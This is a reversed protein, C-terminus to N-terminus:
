RCKNNAKKVIAMKVTNLHFRITMKIQMEKIVLSTSCKKIFKNNMQVEESLLRNLENTWKKFQIIRSNLRKKKLREHIRSILGKDM